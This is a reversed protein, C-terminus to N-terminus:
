LTGSLRVYQLVLVGQVLLLLAVIFQFSTKSTKHRFVNMGLLAGAPGGFFTAAYLVLEPVRRFSTNAAFKDWGYLLFTSINIGALIALPIAYPFSRLLYFWLAGASASAFLIWFLFPPLWDARRM